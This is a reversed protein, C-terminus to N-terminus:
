RVRRKRRALVMSGVVVVVLGGAPWALAEIWQHLSLTWDHQLVERAFGFVGLAGVVGGALGHWAWGLDRSM